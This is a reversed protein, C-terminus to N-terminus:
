RPSSMSRAAPNAAPTAARCTAPFCMAGANSSKGVSCGPTPPLFLDAAGELLRLYSALFLPLDAYFLYKIIM